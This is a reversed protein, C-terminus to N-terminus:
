PRSSIFNPAQTQHSRCPETTCVGYGAVHEQANAESIDRGGKGIVLGLEVLDVLMLLSVVDTFESSVKM